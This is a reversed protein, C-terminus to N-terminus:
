VRRSDFDKQYIIQWQRICYYRNPSFSKRQYKFVIKRAVWDASSFTKRVM